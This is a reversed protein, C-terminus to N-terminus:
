VDSRHCAWSPSTEDGTEWVDPKTWPQWYRLRLMRVLLWVFLAQALWFVINVFSIFHLERSRIPLINALVSLSLLVGLIYGVLLISGATFVFRVFWLHRKHMGLAMIVVLTMAFGLTPLISGLWLDLGGSVVPVLSQITAFPVGAALMAFSFLGASTGKPAYGPPRTLSADAGSM